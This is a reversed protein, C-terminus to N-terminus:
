QRPGDDGLASEASARVAFRVLGDPEGADFLMSSPDQEDWWDSARSSVVTAGNRLWDGTRRLVEGESSRAGTRTARAVLRALSGRGRARHVPPAVASVASV